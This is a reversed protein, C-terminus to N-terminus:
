TFKGTNIYWTFGPYAKENIQRQFTNSLNQIGTLIILDLWNWSVEQVNKGQTFRGYNHSLMLELNRIKRRLNKDSQKERLERHLKDLFESNDSFNTELHVRMAELAMQKESTNEGENYSRFIELIRERLGFNGSDSASKEGWPTSYYSRNARILIPPEINLRKMTPIVASYYQTEGGGGVHVLIPFTINNVMARSDSRPTISTEIETLDPKNSNYSFSYRENCASCQGELSGVQSIKLEVRTKTTCKLCELFFPVYDRERLPLGPSLNLRIVKEYISNLSDIYKSRNEETILFEFAPRVLKRYKENSSPTLFIHLNNRVVLLTSWIKQSWFSFDGTSLASDNIVDFWSEFRELMLIRNHPVIKAYKMLLRLNEQIKVKSDMRWKESPIPVCHMPTNDPLDGSPLTILLGSSSNAQPFRTVTLENQISDHDGIFFLTSLGLFRGIWETQSVKNMLFSSGGFILPQHGVDIMGSELNELSEKVSSTLTGLKRNHELAIRRLEELNDQFQDLKLNKRRIETKKRLELYTSPIDGWFEQTLENSNGTAALRYLDLLNSFELSLIIM